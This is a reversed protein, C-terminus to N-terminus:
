KCSSTISSAREFNQKLEQKKKLALETLAIAHAWHVSRHHVITSVMFLIINAYAIGEAWTHTSKMESIMVTLALIGPVLGINRITGVLLCIYNELNFHQQRLEMLGIELSLESLKMLKALYFTSMSSYINFNTQFLQHFPSYFFSKVNGWENWLGFIPYVLFCLYLLSLFIWVINDLWNYSGFCFKILIFIAISTICGFIGYRQTILTIKGPLTSNEQRQIAELREKIAQAMEIIINLYESNESDQM